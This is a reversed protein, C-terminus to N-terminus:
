PVQEGTSNVMYVFGDKPFSSDARGGRNRIMQIAEEATKTNHICLVCFALFDQWILPKDTSFNFTKGIFNGAKSHFGLFSYVAQSFKGVVTEEPSFNFHLSTEAIPYSDESVWKISHQSSSHAILKSNGSPSESSEPSTTPAHAPNSVLAEAMTMSKKQKPSSKPKSKGGKFESDVYEKFFLLFSDVSSFRFEPRHLINFILVGFHRKYLDMPKMIYRRKIITSPTDGVDSTKQKKKPNSESGYTQEVVFPDIENKHELLLSSILAAFLDSISKTQALGLQQVLKLSKSHLFGVERKQIQDKEPTALVYFNYTCESSSHKFFAPGLDDTFTRGYRQSVPLERSSQLAPSDFSQYGFPSLNLGIANLISATCRKQGEILHTRIDTYFKILWHLRIHLEYENAPVLINQRFCTAISENVIRENLNIVNKASKDDLNKQSHVKFLNDAIFDPHVFDDFNFGELKTASNCTFLDKLLLMYLQLSVEFDALKNYKKTLLLMLKHFSLIIKAGISQSDRAFEFQSDFSKGQFICFLM